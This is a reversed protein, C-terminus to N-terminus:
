QRDTFIPSTRHPEDAPQTLRRDADSDTAPPTVHRVFDCRMDVMCAMATFRWCSCSNTAKRDPNERQDPHSSRTRIVRRAHATGAVRGARRHTRFPRREPRGLRVPLMAVSPEERRVFPALDRSVSPTGLEAGWTRGCREGATAGEAHLNGGTSPLSRDDESGLVKSSRAWGLPITPPTRARCMRLLSTPSRRGQFSNGSTHELDCPRSGRATAAFPEVMQRVREFTFSWQPRERPHGPRPPTWTRRVDTTTPISLDPQPPSRPRGVGAAEPIGRDPQPRARWAGAAKPFAATRDSRRARM